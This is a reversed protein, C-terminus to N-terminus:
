YGLGRDNMEDLQDKTATRINYVPGDNAVNRMRIEDLLDKIHPHDCYPEMLNPASDHKLAYAQVGTSLIDLTGKNKSADLDLTVGGEKMFSLVETALIYDRLDRADEYQFRHTLGFFGKNNSKRIHGFHEDVAGINLYTEYEDRTLNAGTFDKVLMKDRAFGSLQLADGFINTIKAMLAM